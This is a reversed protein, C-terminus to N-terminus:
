INSAGMNELIARKHKELGQCIVGEPDSGPEYTREAEVYEDSLGATEATVQQGPGIVNMERWDGLMPLLEGCILKVRRGGGSHLILTDGEQIIDLCLYLRRAGGPEALSRHDFIRM